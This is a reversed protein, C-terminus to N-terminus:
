YHVSMFFYCLRKDGNKTDLTEGNRKISEFNYTNKFKYTNKLMNTNVTDEEWTGWTQNRLAWFSWILM